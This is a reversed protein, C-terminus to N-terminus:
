PAEAAIMAEDTQLVLVEELRIFDVEPRVEVMRTLGLGEGLETVVGLLNGKPHIRDLGSTVVVDGVEVSSLRSVFELHCRGNGDGVLVGQVRTRQILAAVGSNPDLITQVKAVGSATEIIQGVTGRETIVPQHMAIGHRAGRDLLLIMPTDGAGRAIVAAARSPYTIQDRLDLLSRLRAVEHRAEEVEGAKGALSNLEDLLRDNEDQVGVLAVYSRWGGAVGVSIWNMGTLFPSALAMLAAELMSGRRPERVRSSMLVLNLGLLLFLLLYPKRESLVRAM